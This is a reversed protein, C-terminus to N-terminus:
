RVYSTILSDARSLIVEDKAQAGLGAGPAEEGDM